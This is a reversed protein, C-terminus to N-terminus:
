ELLVDLNSGAQSDGYDGLFVRDLRSITPFRRALMKYTAVGYPGALYPLAQNTDWSPTLMNIKGALVNPQPMPLNDTGTLFGLAGNVGEILQSTGPYLFYKDGEGDTFVFGTDDLVDYLLATKWAGVPYNKGVRMVRRYFDETARYYRSVNRVKYALLSRNGPNDMYSLTFSYARDVAMKTTIKRAAPEGMVAALQAQYEELNKRHGLYNALFIPERSLRAYQEGM